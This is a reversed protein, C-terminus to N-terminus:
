ELVGEDSLRAQEAADLGLIEGLVWENNEGLLPSARGYGSDADSLRFGNREYCCPGMCAHELTVFHGRHLLQEDAIVDAFDAVPVAEVGVGQLTEAVTSADQHATWSAVLSEVDDTRARRAEVTDLEAATSPELEMVGALRRWDTDDWCAIAVFRDDGRCPFAGHPVFRDSRNGQRTGTHGNAAYDLVWPTLSFM